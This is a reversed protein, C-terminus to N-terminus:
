ITKEMRLINHGGVREYSLADTMQHMLIIGLGGVPREDAPVTLDTTSGQTPDFPRGDDDITLVLRGDTVEASVVIATAAGYSIVNVVAEELALRLQRARSEAMGIRETLQTFFTQLRGIEDLRPRLTLPETM